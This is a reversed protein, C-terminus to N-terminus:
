RQSVADDWAAQVLAAPLQGTSRGPRVPEDNSEAGCPVGGPGAWGAVGIRRRMRTALPEAPMAQAFAFGQAYRCGLKAAAAAQAANEVGEALVPLDLGAGLGAVAAVIRRDRECGRDLGAVFSGDVKILQVPLHRLHELSSYGTGFDDLALRLGLEHLQDLVVRIEDVDRLLATETLELGVRGAPVGHRQLTDAVHDVLGPNDLQTPSLNLLLSLNEGDALTTRWRALQAVAREIVWAGIEGIMGNREAAPVFEGPSILGATPHRWRLLVEAAVPEVPEGTPALRWVPQYALALQGQALAGGLWRDLDARRSAAARLEEDFWSFRGPGRGKARHMAADARLLVDEAADGEVAAAAGISADLAFTPQALRLPQTVAGRVAAVLGAVADPAAGTCLVVFEDGAFRGVVDDDGIAGAIRRALVRLVADGTEHGHLDNIKSFGDLDLLVVTVPTHATEALRAALATLLARRNPLGTLEDHHRHARIAAEAREQRRVLHAVRALVLMGIGVGGAVALGAGDGAWGLSVPVALLALAFIAPRLGRVRGAMLLAWVAVAIAVALLLPALAALPQWSPAVPALSAPEVDVSWWVTAVTLGAIVADLGSAVREDPPHGAAVGIM